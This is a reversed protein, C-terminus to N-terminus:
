MERLKCAYHYAMKYDELERYCTELAKACDQPFVQEAQLFHEAALAYAGQGMAAQGLLYHARPSKENVADLIRVSRTYAGADLCAQGRLLLERDDEPLLGVWQAAQEPSLQYMLLVWERRLAQTFYHTKEGAQGAKELLTRAYVTKGEPLVQRAQEMLSLAQLLWYEPDFVGDPTRYGELVQLAQRYDGDAFARRAEEMVQRNPLSVAQEELFWSVPKELRQALYALTNMSPRASGNEIQSLMNRTIEEGCLQRQSLGMDLRAQKIRAGLAM